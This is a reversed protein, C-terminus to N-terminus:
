RSDVPKCATSISGLLAISRPVAVARNTGKVGLLVQDGFLDASTCRSSPGPLHQRHRQCLYTMIVTGIVDADMQLQSQVNALAHQPVARWFAMQTFMYLVTLGSGWMDMFISTTPPTQMVEPGLWTRDGWMQFDTGNGIENACGFDILWLTQDAKIMVNEPKVDQHAWGIHHLLALAEYLQETFNMMQEHTRPSEMVWKDLDKCGSGADELAVYVPIAENSQATTGYCKPFHRSYRCLTTNQVCAQELAQPVKCERAYEAKTKEPAESALWHRRSNSHVLYKLVVPQGDSVRKARWVDGFNGSGLFQESVNFDDTEPPSYLPAQRGMVQHMKLIQGSTPQAADSEEGSMARQLISEQEQALDPNRNHIGLFSSLQFEGFIIDGPNYSLLPSADNHLSGRSKVRASFAVATLTYLLVIYLGHM